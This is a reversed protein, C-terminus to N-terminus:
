EMPVLKLIQGPYIKKPDMINNQEALHRWASSQGYVENAIWDLRQGREVIWTERVESRSTPNQAGTVTYDYVEQVCVTVTARIPTGDPDFMEFSEHLSLIVGVFSRFNGWQVLVQPPEPQGNSSYGSEVRLLDNLLAYRTRVDRKTNAWFFPIVWKSEESSDFFLQLNLTGSDGGGFTTNPNNDNPDDKKRWNMKKQMTFTPPNYQVTMKSFWSLSVSENQSN